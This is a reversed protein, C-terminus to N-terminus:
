RLRRRESKSGNTEQLELYFDVRGEFQFCLIKISAVSCLQYAHLRTYYVQSDESVTSTAGLQETLSSSGDSQSDPVLM